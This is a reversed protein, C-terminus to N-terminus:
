RTSGELILIAVGRVVRTTEVQELVLILTAIAGGMVLILGLAILVWAVLAMEHSPRTHLEIPNTKLM